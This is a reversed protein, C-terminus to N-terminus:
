RLMAFVGDATPWAAAPARLSLDSGPILKGHGRGEGSSPDMQPDQQGVRGFPDWTGGSWGQRGWCASHEM